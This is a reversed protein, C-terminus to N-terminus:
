LREKLAEYSKGDSAQIILNGIQATERGPVGSRGHGNSQLSEKSPRRSMLFGKLVGEEILSVKKAPVGQDDIEYHGILEHNGIRQETPDDYVSFFEPLVPRNLRDTIESRTAPGQERESMPLRQGSLNPALIRAFMEASAQGTLLVPGSYDADLVPTTRVATLDAAMKRISNSIGSATPLRDFSRANFPVSYGVRMGDAAQATADVEVSVVLSAQMTRTGESNVIYKHTLLARLSVNSIDIESFDRFIASWERVQKEWRTQDLELSRRTSIANVPSEKSFDPLEEERVKNQVFARKRAIQEVAQKYANDTALWISHRLANYDNEQVVPQLVGSGAQPAGGAVFESNDFNYDGVRVQASLARARNWESATLAGFTASAHYQEQDVIVYQIFYPKELDKFELEAVSRQLEDNMARMIVDDSNSQSLFMAPVLVLTGAAKLLAFKM